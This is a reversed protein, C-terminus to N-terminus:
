CTARLCREIRLRISLPPMIGSENDRIVNILLCRQLAAAIVKIYAIIVPPPMIGSGNDRIVNILLCRRLAAVIIKIYAIIVPPPM